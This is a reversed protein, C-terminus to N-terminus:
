KSSDLAWLIGQLFHTTTKPNTFIEENHGLSTYFVRGEGYSKKWSIPYSSRRNRVKEFSNKHPDLLLLPTICAALPEKFEYIEETLDFNEGKLHAVTLDAVQTEPIKINVTSNSKWPHGNFQAGIIKKYEPWEYFTDTAAHFGIFGKGSKIFHSFATKLRADRKAWELEEKPTLAVKKKKSHPLFIEGTTNFFCIADYKNINEPELEDLDNSITTNFTNTNVGLQKIANSGFPISKHRYGKTITILLLDRGKNQPVYPPKPSACLNAAVCLFLSLIKQLKLM